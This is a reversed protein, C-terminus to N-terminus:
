TLDGRYRGIGGINTATFGQSNLLVCARVSRAGSQCYVFLPTNKRYRVGRIRDLSVNLSGPIHGSHYEEATRVDLLIAGPTSKFQALGENIDKRKGFLSLWSM